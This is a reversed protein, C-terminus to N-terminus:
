RPFGARPAKKIGEPETKYQLGSFRFVQQQDNQQWFKAERM